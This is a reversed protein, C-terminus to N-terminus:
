VVVMLSASSGGLAENLSRRKSTIYPMSYGDEGAGVLASFMAAKSTRVDKFIRLEL